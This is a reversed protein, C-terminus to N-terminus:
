GLLTRQQTWEAPLSDLLRPLDLQVSDSGNLLAAVLDPALLTLQLLRGMYGRDLKEAEAMESLSAYHGADLMRQYRFARAPAKVLAPEGRTQTTATAQAPTAVGDPTVVTKGGQVAGSAL